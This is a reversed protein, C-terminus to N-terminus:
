CSKSPRLWCERDLPYVGTHPNDSGVRMNGNRRFIEEGLRISIWNFYWRGITSTLNRYYSLRRGSM